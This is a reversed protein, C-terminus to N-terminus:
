SWEAAERVGLLRPMLPPHRTPAPVHQIEPRRRPHDNVGGGVDMEPYKRPRGPRGRLRISAAALLLDPCRAGRVVEPEQKAM